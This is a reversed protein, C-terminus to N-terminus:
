FAQGLGLSFRGAVGSDSGNLPYAWDIRLTNVGLEPILLRLGVGVDHKASLGGFSEAAHGVDYFLVGGYRLKDLTLPQMRLEVNVVGATEGVYEGVPYGRLGSDGGIQLFDGSIRNRVTLGRARVVTRFLGLVAPSVGSLEITTRRETFQDSQRQGSMSLQGRVFWDSFAHLYGVQGLYQLFARESWLASSAAGLEATFDLGIRVDEPLDFTDVNRYIAFDQLLFQYRTFILSSRESIPLFEDVFADRVENTGEFSPLVEPRQIQLRHGAFIRHKANGGLQRVGSLESIFRRLGYEVPVEEIVPTNPDDFQLLDDGQFRRVVGDFHSASIQAGWPTEFSWLPYGFSMSSQSGELGSGTERGFVLAATLELVFRKGLVNPDRYLPGIAYSGQTLEFLLGLQKRWGLFNNESPRLTLETLKGDRIEFDSNLRLSWLDQTVVLVDVAG